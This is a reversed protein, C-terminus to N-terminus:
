EKVADRVMDETSGRKARFNVEVESCVRQSTLLASKVEMEGKWYSAQDSLCVSNM